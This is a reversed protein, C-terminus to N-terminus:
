SRPGRSKIRCETSRKFDATPVKKLLYLVIFDVATYLLPRVIKEQTLKRGTPKEPSGALSAGLFGSSCLAPHLM